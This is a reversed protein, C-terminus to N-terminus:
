KQEHICGMTTFQLMMERTVDPQDHGASHGANHIVVRCFQGVKSYFGLLRDRRKWVLRVSDNYEGQLSWHTSALAAEVVPSGVIGDLDGNYILVKFKDMLLTLKSSSSHLIDKALKEYVRMNTALFSADGAHVLRRLRDSNMVDQVADFPPYVESLFNGVDPCGFTPRISEMIETVAYQTMEGKQFATITSITERKWDDIQRPTVAGKSHYFDMYALNQSMPDLYPACLYIGALPLSSKGSQIMQALLYAFGTVYQGAYSAGGIYLERQKHDPFLVYFLEIFEYLDGSYGDQTSRYGEEGSDSYSYGVGVPNDIYLMSFTEAWSESWKEYDSSENIKSSLRIPGNDHFLGFMSTVGPGGNLWLLLPASSRVSPQIAPFFWFFLNNGVKQDVTIFGAYSKPIVGREDAVESLKQAETIKGECIFPSLHLPRLTQCNTASIVLYMSLLLLDTCHKNM